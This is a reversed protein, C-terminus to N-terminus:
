INKLYMVEQSNIKVFHVVINKPPNILIKPPIPPNQPIKLTDENNNNM